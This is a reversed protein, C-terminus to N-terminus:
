NIVWVARSPNLLVMSGICLPMPIDLSLQL